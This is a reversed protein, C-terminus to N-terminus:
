AANGEVRSLLTLRDFPRDFPGETKSLAMLKDFPLHHRSLPDPTTFFLQCISGVNISMVKLLFLSRLRATFSSIAVGAHRFAV